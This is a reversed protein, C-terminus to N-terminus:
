WRFLRAATGRPFREAGRPLEIFGDTGALSVFDGSTNTPRPEALAHGAESWKLRVPLFYTLDAAFHVEAALTVREQAGGHEGLAARLAPIVYRYLCVLTSVPNGPLAFVPKHERSVGFWMPRGPRQEIKHFVLEVGLEELVGPVFDFRGMSVGGSLIMADNGAHLERVRELMQERRDKLLARTVRGSCHRELAAAIAWDNSSRVQHGAVVAGPEVLEDGTSIVAVRPGAAVDVEALGASALVAIEPPNLRIGSTLLTEGAPRDSGRPHVFQRATVTASAEVRARRGDRTIREVPIITDADDPLVAGTMIEICRGAAGLSSPKAGAGQLGVVEFDRVGAQWDRYAIAIGDMTVRDFPPQDRDSRVDQRLVCGTAESLPARRSPLPEIRDLILREAEAVDLVIRTGEITTSDRFAM